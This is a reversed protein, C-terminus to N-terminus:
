GQLEQRRRQVYGLDCGLLEALEEDHRRVVDAPLLWERAFVEIIEDEEQQVRLTEADGRSIPAGRLDSLLCHGIEHVFRRRGGFPTAPHEPLSVLYQIFEWNTFARRIDLYLLSIPAGLRAQAWQRLREDDEGSPCGRIDLDRRAEVATQRVQEMRQERSM